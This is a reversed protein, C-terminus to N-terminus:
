ELLSAGVLKEAYKRDQEFFKEIEEQMVASTKKEEYNLNISRLFDIFGLKEAGTLNKLAGSIKLLKKPPCNIFRALIKSRHYARANLKPFAQQGDDRLGLFRLVRLYTERTNKSFEDFAVFLVRDREVRSLFYDLYKSIRGFEQYSVLIRDKVNPPVLDGNMRSGSLSWAENFDEVSEHGSKLMQSHESLVMRMPNRLCVIYLPNECYSEIRQVAENSYIYATSGEGIATESNVKEFLSRYARETTYKNIEPNKFDSAFYHPEKM